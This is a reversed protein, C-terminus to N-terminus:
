AEGLERTINGRRSQMAVTTTMLFDDVGIGQEGSISHVVARNKEGFGDVLYPRKSLWRGGKFEKIEQRDVSRLVSLMRVSAPIIGYMMGRFVGPFIKGMDM